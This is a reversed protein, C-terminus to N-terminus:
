ADLRVGQREAAEALRQKRAAEYRREVARACSWCYPDLVNGLDIKCGECKGRSVLGGRTDMVSKRAM